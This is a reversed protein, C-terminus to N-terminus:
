FFFDIIKIFKLLMVSIVYSNQRGGEFGNGKKPFPTHPFGKRKACFFLNGGCFVDVFFM